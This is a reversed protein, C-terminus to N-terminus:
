RATEGSISTWNGILGTEIEDKWPNSFLKVQIGRRQGVLDWMQVCDEELCLQNMETLKERIENWSSLEMTVDPITSVIITCTRRTEYKPLMYRRFAIRHGIGFLTPLPQGPVDEPLMTFIIRNCDVFFTLGRPPTNSSRMGVPAVTSPVAQHSPSSFTSTVLLSLAWWFTFKM